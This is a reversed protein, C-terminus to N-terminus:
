LLRESAFLFYILIVLLNKNKLFVLLIEFCYTVTFLLVVVGVSERLNLFLVTGEDDAHEKKLKKIEDELQERTM